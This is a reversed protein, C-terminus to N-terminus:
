CKGSATAMQFGVLVSNELSPWATSVKWEEVSAEDVLDVKTNAVTGDEEADDKGSAWLVRMAFAPAKWLMNPGVNRPGFALVASLGVGFAAWEEEEEEGKEWLEKKQTEAQETRRGQLCDDLQRRFATALDEAGRGGGVSITSPRRMAAPANGAAAEESDAEEAAEERGGGGEEAHGKKIAQM